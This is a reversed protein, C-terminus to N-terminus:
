EIEEDLINNFKQEHLQKKYEEETLFRERKFKSRMNNDSVILYQSNDYDDLVEYWKGITLSDEYSPYFQINLLKKNKICIVKM